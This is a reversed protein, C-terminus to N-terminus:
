RGAAATVVGVPRADPVEIGRVGIVAARGVGSYVDRRVVGDLAVGGDAGAPKATTAVARAVQEVEVVGRNVLLAAADEAVGVAADALAHGLAGVAEGGEGGDGPLHVAAPQERLEVHQSDGGGRQHGSRNVARSGRGDVDGPGRGVVISRGDGAVFDVPAGVAAREHQDCRGACADVFVVVRDGGALVDGVLHRGEVGM